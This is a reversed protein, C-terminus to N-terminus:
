LQSDENAVDSKTHRGWDIWVESLGLGVVGIIVVANLVPILLSAGIAVLLWPKFNRGQVRQSVLHWLVGIGQVGYLLLLVLASNWFLYRLFGLNVVLSIVAGGLTGVTPSLMTTPVVFGVVDVRQNRRNLSLRGINTGIYWSAGIIAVYSPLFTALLLQMATQVLEAVVDPSTELLFDSGLAEMASVIQTELLGTLFNSRLAAIIFPILIIGTVATAALMRYLRRPLYVMPTDIVYLSAIMIAPIVLDIAAVVISEGSAILRILGVISLCAISGVILSQRGRREFLVQLPVLFLFLFLGSRYLLASALGLVGIELWYSQEKQIM